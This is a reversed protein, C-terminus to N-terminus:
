ASDIVAGCNSCKLVRRKSMMFAGVTFCFLSVLLYGTAWLFLSLMTEFAADPYRTMYDSGATYRLLYICVSALVSSSVGAVLWVVGFLFIRRTFRGVLSRRLIGGDCVKCTVREVPM